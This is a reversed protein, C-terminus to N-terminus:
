KKVKDLTDSIKLIHFVASELKKFSIDPASDKVVFVLDYGPKITDMNVRCIEKLRRRIKNRVVANGIKKKATIGIRSYELGNSKKYLVLNRNGYSDRNSYVKKYEFYSKIIHKKDM